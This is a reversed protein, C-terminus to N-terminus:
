QSSLFDQSSEFAVNVVGVLNRSDKRGQDANARRKTIM